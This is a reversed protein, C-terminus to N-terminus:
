AALQREMLSQLSQLTQNMDALEGKVSTLESKVSTLETQVTALQQEAHVARKDAAQARSEAEERRKREADIQAQVEPEIWKWGTPLKGYAYDAYAKIFRVRPEMPESRMYTLKLASGTNHALAAETVKEPANVREGWTRCTSRYGHLTPNEGPTDSKFPLKKTLRGISRKSVKKGKLSPFILAPNRKGQGKIARMEKFLDLLQPPVPVDFSNSMKMHNEPIRWLVTKTSGDLNDWDVPEWGDDIWDDDTHIHKWQLESWEADMASHSRLGTIMITQLLTRIAIDHETRERVAAIAAPLDMYALAPHHKTKRSKKMQSRFPKDIPNVKVKSAYKKNNMCYNFVDEIFTTATSAASPTKKNLDILHYLDAKEIQDIPKNGISPFVHNKFISMNVRKTYACWRPKDDGEQLTCNQEILQLAVAQFNPLNAQERPDTGNAALDANKEAMEYVAAVGVRPFKGLGLERPTPKGNTVVDKISINQCWKQSIKGSVLQDVQMYLGFHGPGFRYTGPKVAKTQIARDIFSIQTSPM